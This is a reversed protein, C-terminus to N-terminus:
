IIVFIDYFNPYYLINDKLYLARREGIGAYVITLKELRRKCGCFFAFNYGVALTERNLSPRSLILSCAIRQSINLMCRRNHSLHYVVRRVFKDSCAEKCSFSGTIFNWRQSSPSGNWLRLIGSFHEACWHDYLSSLPSTENLLIRLISTSRLKAKWHRKRSSM